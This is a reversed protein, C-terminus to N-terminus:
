QFLHVYLLNTPVWCLSGSVPAVMLELDAFRARRPRSAILGINTYLQEAYQFGFFACVREKPITVCVSNDPTLLHESNGSFVLILDEVRPDSLSLNPGFHKACIYSLDQPITGALKARCRFLRHNQVMPVANLDALLLFNSDLLSNVFLGQLDAIEQSDSRQTEFLTSQQSDANVAFQSELQVGFQTDPISPQTRFQTLYQSAPPLGVRPQAPQSVPDLVERLRQSAQSDSEQKVQLMEESSVPEQKIARSSNEKDDSSNLPDSHVDPSELQVNPSSLHENHTNGAEDSPLKTPKGVLSCLTERLKPDRALVLSGQDVFRDWFPQFDEDYQSILRVQEAVIHFELARKQIRLNARMLCAKNAVDIWNSNELSAAERDFFDRRFRTKYEELLNQFESIGLKIHLIQERKLSIAETTPVRIKDSVINPNSTFDTVLLDIQSSQTPVRLFLCFVYIHGKQYPRFSSDNAVTLLMDPLTLLNFIPLSIRPLPLTGSYM